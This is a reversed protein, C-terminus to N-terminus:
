LLSPHADRKKESGVRVYDRDTYQNIDLTSFDEPM